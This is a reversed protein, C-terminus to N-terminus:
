ESKKPWLAICTGMILMVGGVWVWSVLPNVFIDMSVNDNQDLGQFIVFVDRFFEYHIDVERTQQQQLQYYVIRPSITTVYEKTDRQFIDFVARYIEKNPATGTALERFRLIFNTVEILEGPRNPITRKIELVFISSGILGAVGLAVGLNAIYGGFRSRNKIM